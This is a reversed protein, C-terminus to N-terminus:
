TATKKGGGDASPFAKGRWGLRTSTQGVMRGLSSYSAGCEIKMNKIVAFRALIQFHITGLLLKCAAKPSKGV